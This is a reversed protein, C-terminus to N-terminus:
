LTEDSEKQLVLGYTFVYSLLMLVAFIIVFNFNMTFVYELRDVAASSFVADMPYAKTIIVREAVGLVQMLFGGALVVWATKKLNAPVDAEFPRGEKMAALIRRALRIGYYIMACLIMGAVLGVVAYLRVMGTVTQFEEALHIKVFDLDLTLSGEAFMKGGFVLVLVAFVLCVIGAAQMFGGVVKAITDLTNATKVLKENKM